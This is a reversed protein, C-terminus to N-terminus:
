DKFGPPDGIPRLSQFAPPSAATSHM